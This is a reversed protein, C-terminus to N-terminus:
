TVFLSASIIVGSSCVTELTALDCGNKAKDPRPSASPDMFVTKLFIFRMVETRKRLSGRIGTVNM